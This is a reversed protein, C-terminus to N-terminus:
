LDEADEVVEGGVDAVDEGSEGAATEFVGADNGAHAAAGDVDVALEEAGDGEGPGEGLFGDGADGGDLRHALQTAACRRRERHGGGGHRRRASQCGQAR